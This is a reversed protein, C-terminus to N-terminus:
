MADMQEDMSWIMAQQALVATALQGLSRVAQTSTEVQERGLALLETYGVELDAVKGELVSIRESMHDVKGDLQDVAVDMTFQNRSIQVETLDCLRCSKDFVITSLAGSYEMALELTPDAEEEGTNHRIIGHHFAACQYPNLQHHALKHRAVRSIAHIFDWCYLDDFGDQDPNHM